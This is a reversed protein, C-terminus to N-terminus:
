QVVVQLLTAASAQIQPSKIASSPPWATAPTQYDIDPPALLTASTGAIHWPHETHSPPSNRALNPSEVQLYGQLTWASQSYAATSSLWKLYTRCPGTDSSPLSSSLSLLPLSSSSFSTLTSIVSHAALAELNNSGMERENQEPGLGSLFCATMTNEPEDCLLQVLRDERGAALRAAQTEVVM